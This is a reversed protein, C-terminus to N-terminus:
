HCGRGKVTVAQGRRGGNEILVLYVSAVPIASVTPIPTVIQARPFTVSLCCSTPSFTASFDFWQGSQTSFLALHEVSITYRCTQSM